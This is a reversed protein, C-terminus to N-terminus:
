TGRKALQILRNSREGSADYQLAHRCQRLGKGTIPFPVPGGVLDCLM